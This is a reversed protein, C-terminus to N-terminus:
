TVFLSGWGGGPDGPDPPAGPSWSSRSSLRRPHRRVFHVDKEAWQRFTQQFEPPVPLDPLDPNAKPVNRQNIYSRLEPLPTAGWAYPHDDEAYEAVIAVIAAAGLFALQSLQKRVPQPAVDAEDRDLQVEAQRDTWPPGPHRLLYDGIAELTAEPAGGANLSWFLSDLYPPRSGSRFASASGGLLAGLGGPMDLAQRITIMHKDLAVSRVFLDAAAAQSTVAPDCQLLDKVLRSWDGGFQKLEAAVQVGAIATAQDGAQIAASLVAWLEGAVSQAYPGSNRILSALGNWRLASQDTRFYVLAIQRTLEQVWGPSPDVSRLLTALFGLAAAPVSPAPGGPPSLVTQYFRAAGGTSTRDMIQVALEAVVQWNGEALHPFLTSALKEPSDNGAALHAATFYELFTRHTFGYLREGAGTTGVESLIWSRGQCFWVLERAADRADDPAEFNDRLFRAIRTILEREPVVVPADPRTFLWWALDRLVPKVRRGVRLQHHIRRFEDWDRIFLDTCKEYVEDRNKPLSGAGRYLVCLLSLLLPNVRLDAVSGSESLFAYGDGPKAGPALAFWKRVYEDVQKNGFEGLRYCSFQRDDLRAQDYGILRSTVLVPAQPYEACFHEVVRSVDRRRSTDALEDLGDFIVVARATLLLLDVLGAPARCQYRTELMHEIHGVVSRSLAAADFERLTVLFPVRGNGTAAFHHMLVSAATTKGSGPDGLLVTRDLRGALDWITFSRASVPREPYLDERIVAPVYIDDVPVRRRREFDPPELTGHEELVHNRYSDLFRTETVQDPRATLAATHREIAHLISIMRASLAESRIQALLPKDAAELRAVLAGIQGDYYDVLVDCGPVERLMAARAMAAYMEPADTLRVALLEHLAAQFEDSVVRDAAGPSMVPPGATLKYTAFWRALELDGAAKRDRWGVAAVALRRGVVAIANVLAGTVVDDVNILELGGGAACTTPRAAKCTLTGYM